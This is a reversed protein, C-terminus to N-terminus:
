LDALAAREIWGRRGDCRTVQMWGERQDTVDVRSGEKLVFHLTGSASPEFRAPSEGDVVVVAQQQWGALVQHALSTATLLVVVAVAASLYVLARPRSPWLRYAALIAFLVSYAASTLWVLRSTALRRAFPFALRPWLAPPCPEAGTLSQAYSLNAALDADTPLFRRAREYNLIAKGREGAKFYANGLNFYLNGSEVGAQLVQEYERAAEAFRGDKYLANAHFFTTQPSAPPGAAAATAAVSTLVLLTLATM